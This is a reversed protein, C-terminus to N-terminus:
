TRHDGIHHDVAVLRDIYVSAIQGDFVDTSLSAIEKPLHERTAPDASVAWPLAALSLTGSVNEIGLIKATKLFGSKKLV